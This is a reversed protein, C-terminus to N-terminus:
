ESRVAATIEIFQRRGEFEKAGWIDFTRGEFVLRDLSSVDAWASDYRIVFRASLTSGVEGAALKEGDSIAKYSAFIGGPVISSWTAVEGGYDDQTVTKRQLDIKRDFREPKM